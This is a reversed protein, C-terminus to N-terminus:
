VLSNPTSNGALQPAPVTPQFTRPIRRRGAWWWIGATLIALLGLPLLLLPLNHWHLWSQWGYDVYLYLPILAAGAAFPGILEAPGLRGGRRAGFRAGSLLGAVAAYILTLLGGIVWFGVSTRQLWLLLM